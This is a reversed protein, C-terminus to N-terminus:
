DTSLVSACHWWGRPRMGRRGDQFSAVGHEDSALGRCSDSVCCGAACRDNFPRQCDQDSTSTTQDHFRNVVFFCEQANTPCKRSTESLVPHNGDHSKFFFYPLRNSDNEARITVLSDHSPVKARTQIREHELRYARSRHLEHLLSNLLSQDVPLRSDVHEIHLDGAIRAFVVFQQNVHLISHARGISACIKNVWEIEVFSS